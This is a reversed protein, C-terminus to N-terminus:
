RKVLRYNSRVKEELCKYANITDEMRAVKREQRM